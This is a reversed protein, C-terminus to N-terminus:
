IRDRDFDENADLRKAADALSVPPTIYYYGDTESAFLRPSNMSAGPSVPQLFKPTEVVDIQGLWSPVTVVNNAVVYNRLDAIRDRYYDILAPGGPALGGGSAPGFPVGTQQSLHQLWFQVAWGHGLEDYGMRELDAANFPLLQEDRLMADYASRGMAFNEPWKADHADIYAKTAGIVALTKDRAAAFAAFKDPAIQAKAADTLAGNFFDGVGALEESGVVGFLHGPTTVLRQGAVIYAPAKQLRSTVDAWARAVDAATAGSRGAIALHEFQTFIAGVVANAPGSYDKRDTQYVTYQRLTSTLQAQLLKADDREVLTMASGGTAEIKDLRGQWSAILAIDDNRASESPTELDGDYGSIGFGTATMPHLRAWTFTMDKALSQLRDYAPTASATMPAL